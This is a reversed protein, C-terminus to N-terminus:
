INEGKFTLNAEEESRKIQKLWLNLEEPTEILILEGDANKILGYSILVNIYEGAKARSCGWTQMCTLILKERNTTLGGKISCNKISTYIMDIREKRTKEAGM